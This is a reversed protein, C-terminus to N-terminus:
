FPEVESPALSQVEFQLYRLQVANPNPNNRLVREAEDQPYLATHGLDIYSYEHGDKDYYTTAKDNTVVWGGGMIISIRKEVLSM